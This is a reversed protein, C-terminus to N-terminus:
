RGPYLVNRVIIGANNIAYAKSHTHGPLPLLPISAATPSSWYRGVNWLIDVGVIQDNQNM